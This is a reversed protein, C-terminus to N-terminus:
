VVGVFDVGMWSTRCLFLRSPNIIHGDRRERRGHRLQPRIGTTGKPFKYSQEKVGRQSPTAYSKLIEVNDKEIITIDVNFGSGNDNLIGAEVADKVLDIAEQREMKSTWRSEFVAMAALSGSGMTVYPLKSTSGAPHINFLHPGNFDHGGLILAASIHGQYRLYPPPHVNTLPIRNFLMQKLMTLATEVRPQRGTALSHLELQSSILSTTFETDAATGAGCCYVSIRKDPQTHPFVHAYFLPVCMNPALYHIKHCNKDAVTDGETSRTDAGLVVGDKFIIGVITTGTSTAKPPRIGKSELAMNRQVNDFNFGSKPLSYKMAMTSLRTSNRSSPCAFSTARISRTILHVM